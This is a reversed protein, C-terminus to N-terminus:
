NTITTESKTEDIVELTDKTLNDERDLYKVFGRLISATEGMKDYVAKLEDKYAPNNFATEIFDLMVIDFNISLQNVRDRLEELTTCDSVVLNKNVFVKKTRKTTKRKM